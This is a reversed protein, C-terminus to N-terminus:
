LDFERNCFEDQLKANTFYDTNINCFDSQIYKFISDPLIINVEELLKLNSRKSYDLIANHAENLASLDAETRYEDLFQPTASDDFSILTPEFSSLVNEMFFYNDTINHKKIFVNLEGFMSEIYIDDKYNDASKIAVFYLGTLEFNMINTLAKQCTGSSVFDFFGVRSDPKIGLPEIYKLYNERYQKAIRLIATKHRLIYEDGSESKRQEMIDGDSLHFRDKLMEKPTGDYALQAAHIIDEDDSLGAIVALARSVYFYKMQPLDHKDKLLQYMKEIIHGDRSSLLIMDLNLERAKKVMWSFFCSILPAIFSYAMDYNSNAEFKGFTRNFLFPDNLQKSIFEGIILRNPLTNSYNLIESAYSDELMKGANEVHFTDDIGYRIASTIDAEYNDGIHLIRGNGAKQRLLSFLGNHKATKCDCSVLVRESKVNIGLKSLMEAMIEKPLYMDSTLWVSKGKELAYNLMEIMANRPVLYEKELDIEAQPSYARGMREYIDYINPDKEESYLETEAKIRAKAFDEDIIYFIDRPYLCRRMILTDFIDFSIIDAKDIKSQLVDQNISKYKEFSKEVREEFGVPNGNIDYVDLSHEIAFDAIRRYIINVNSARAIIVIAKVGLELAEKCSIIPKGYITDGTRVEDMLGVIKYDPFSDLIYKTNKGIGYIVLPANYLHSFNNKFSTLVYEKESIM